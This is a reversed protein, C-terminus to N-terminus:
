LPTVIGVRQGIEYPQYAPEASTIHGVIEHGPIIPLAPYPLEGDVLHLDTRCVGCASIQGPGARTGSCANAAQDTALGRRSQTLVMAKMRESANQEAGM